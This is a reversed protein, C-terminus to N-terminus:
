PATITVPTPPGYPFWKGGLQARMRLFWEDGKVLPAGATQSDFVFQTATSPLANEARKELWSCGDIQIDDIFIGTPSQPAAQHTFISGGGTYYRFRLRVPGASGPIRRKMRSVNMDYKTNSVGRLKKGFGSWTVGGDRSIEMVLKSGRSMFGRRYKFSISAKRNVILDRDLEFWQEPVGGAQADYANPFTLHFSSRGAVNGFGRFGRTKAILPYNGGTGDVVAVRAAREANEKLTATRGLYSAVQLSESGAPPTIAYTASQNTAVTTPGYVGQDSMLLDPDILTVSYHHTPPVGPGRIGTVRVHYTTDAHVTRSAAAGGVEWILAPDGYSNNWTVSKLPVGAGSADTVQVSAASFDADQRSLSWYSSNIEMPFFGASPYAVFGPQSQVVLEEPKQMVYFVNTPPNYVTTGPQDGTAFDMAGPLLSWRRHGVLSNWSSTSISASYREIMYENIAGPGYIGFAFNGKALANWAAPSWGTLNPTPNHTLALNVGSNSNYNRSLMLAADQAAQSKLSAPSPVYTDGGTITVTSRSNVRASADVGCMARFYNLRREVDDVFEESVSGSNGSYNGTWRIRNEYGESAQHVAHWFAVVDNRDHHNVSFGSSQMRLPAAPYTGPQWAETVSPSLAIASASISILLTRDFRM